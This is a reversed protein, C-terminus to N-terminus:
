KIYFIKNITRAIITKIFIGMPISYFLGYLRPAIGSGVMFTYFFEYVGILSLVPFVIRGKRWCILHDMYRFIMYYILYQFIPFLYGFVALGLGVDGGVIYSPFVTTKQSCAYLKDMPSFEYDQKRINGFLIKVIPAPFILKLSIISFDIMDDCPIGAKKAHYISADAVQYNCIRNFFVNSIYDESWESKLDTVKISKGDEVKNIVANIQAMRESDMALDITEKLLESAGIDSRMYRVAVMAVAFNTLPIGILIISIIFTFLKKFSIKIISGLIDERHYICYFFSILIVTMIITVISNRSNSAIGMGIIVISYCVLLFRNLKSVSTDSNTFLQKFLICYPAVLFPLVFIYITGGGATTEEGYQNDLLYVRGLIGCFGLVWLTKNGLPSFYGINNLIKNICKVPTHGSSRNFAILTIIFYLFQWLFTEIPSIMNYTLPHGEVFTLIPAFYTFFQLGVMALFALPRNKISNVKYVYRVFFEFALLSVVCGVITDISFYFVCQLICFILLIIRLIKTTKNVFYEM